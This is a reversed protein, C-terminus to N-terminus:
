KFSNSQTCTYCVWVHIRSIYMNMGTHLVNMIDMYIVYCLFESVCFYNRSRLEPIFSKIVKSNLPKEIYPSLYWREISVKGDTGFWTRVQCLAEALLHFDVKKRRLCFEVLQSKEFDWGMSGTHSTVWTGPWM